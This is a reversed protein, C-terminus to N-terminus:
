GFTEEEFSQPPSTGRRGQHNEQHFQARIHSSGIHRVRLRFWRFRTGCSSATSTMVTAVRRCGTFPARFCAMWPLVHLPPGQRLCRSRRRKNSLNTQARHRQATRTEVSASFALCSDRTPCCRPLNRLRDSRSANFCSFEDTTGHAVRSLPPPSM